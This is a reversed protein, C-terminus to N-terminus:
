EEAPKELKENVEDTEGDQPRIMEFYRRITQRHGLPIPESDLASESLQEYEKAKRSVRSRGRAAARPRVAKGSRQRRAGFGPGLAEKLQKQGRMGAKAKEPRM